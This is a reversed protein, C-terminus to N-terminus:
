TQQLAMAEKSVDEWRWCASRHGSNDTQILRPNEELCKDIRFWCRAAFPCGKPLDILDPPFGEIPQLKTKRAQDVRPVSRMLGLTYPHRPNSYLDKVDAEEIIFGAYMVVVRDALGAIVGLDHTIWIIAMGLESKLRAILDLIQAQITVDLATTPEDAILLQPNCALGMSIMVRQRMGGSFQHPYDDVRNRAGAVGVMELLEITRKKAQDKDMGLHLTLAESIQQNITLVPNLSTMPDQFIMAIRNGRIQRVEEDSMKLIDRGNFIVEGGAIKGPPQPILRMISMVSVSKGSGSEGVIGLTEGENLTYSIGNVAHVQGDQTNFVTRLDKVELLTAM